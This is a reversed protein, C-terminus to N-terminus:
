PLLLYPKEAIVCYVAHLLHRISLGRLQWVNGLELCYYLLTATATSCAHICTNM